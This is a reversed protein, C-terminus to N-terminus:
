NLKRFSSRMWSKEAVWPLWTYITSTEYTENHTKIECSGPFQNQTGLLLKNSLKMCKLLDHEVATALDSLDLTVTGGHSNEKVTM